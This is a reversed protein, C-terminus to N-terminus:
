ATVAQRAFAAADHVLELVESQTRGEADNWGLYWQREGTRALVMLDLYSGAVYHTNAQFSCGSEDFRDGYGLEAAVSLAKFLCVGGSEARMVNQAWGERALVHMAGDLHRAVAVTPADSLRLRLRQWRPESLLRSAAELRAIREAEVVPSYPAPPQTPTTPPQIPTATSM